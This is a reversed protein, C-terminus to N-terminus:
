DENRLSPRVIDDAKATPRITEPSEIWSDEDVWQRLDKYILHEKETYKRFKNPNSLRELCFKYVLEANRKKKTKMYPIILELTKTVRKIGCIVLDHCPKRKVRKDVYHRKRFYALGNEKLIRGVNELLTDDTNIIQVRPVYQLYGVMHKSLGIYGEGEIIGTVWALDNSQREQQNDIIVDAGNNGLLSSDTKHTELM